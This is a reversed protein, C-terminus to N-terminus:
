TSKTLVLGTLDKKDVTQVLPDSMSATYNTSGSYTATINSSGAPLTTTALVAKGTTTNVAVPAGFNVGGVKFQVTGSATSPTVTATLTLSQGYVSPNLNSAVAVSTAAKTVALSGAVTKFSYNAAGITGLVPTIAYSGVASSATAATTTTGLIGTLVSSDDGNVYGTITATLAPNVTGYVKSKNDATVTLVAKTVAQTIAASTKNGVNADGSYVATIAYSGVVKVVSASTAVGNVLDVPAGENAGNVKFQITGTALAPVVKATFTVASGYAASLKSSTVTVGSSYPLITLTGNVPTFAYNVSQLGGVSPIIDYDGPASSIEATTSMAPTGTIVTAIQGNKFGAYTFTLAPNLQGYPRSKDDARVAILAKNVTLTGPTFQFQYRDSVLTGLAANITYNGVLSTATAVTTLLPAGTLVSADEGAVFGTYAPVFVPNTDGYARSAPEASVTLPAKNVKIIVTKSVTEYNVSDTPTCTVSLDQSGVGLIAGLPQSYICNGPLPSNDHSLTANLQAGGLTTGYTIDAPTAWNIVPVHQGTVDGQSVAGTRVLYSVPISSDGDKLSVTIVNFDDVGVVYFVGSGSTSTLLTSPEGSQLSGYYVSPPSGQQNLTAVSITAGGLPNGLPNLVRGRIVGDLFRNDQTLAVWGQLANLNVMDMAITAAATGSDILASYSSLCGACSEGGVKAAFRIDTPIGSVSFSGSVDTNTTTYYIEQPASPTLDPVVVSVTGGQLPTLNPNNIRGSLTRAESVSTVASIILFVSSFWFLKRLGTIYKVYQFRRM